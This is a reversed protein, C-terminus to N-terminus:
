QGNPFRGRPRAMLLKGRGRWEKALHAIFCLSCKPSPSDNSIPDGPSYIERLTVSRRCGGKAQGAEAQGLTARRLTSPQLTVSHIAGGSKEECVCVRVCVGECGNHFGLLHGLSLPHTLTLPGGVGGGLRVKGIEGGEFGWRTWSSAPPRNGYRYLQLGSFSRGGGRRRL